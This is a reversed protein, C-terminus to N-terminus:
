SSIVLNSHTIVGFRPLVRLFNKLQNTFLPESRYTGNKKSKKNQKLLIVVSLVIACLIVVSLMSVIPM